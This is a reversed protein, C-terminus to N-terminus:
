GILHEQQISYQITRVNCGNYICRITVRGKHCLMSQTCATKRDKRYPLVVEFIKHRTVHSTEYKFSIVLFPYKINREPHFMNSYILLYNLLMALLVSVLVFLEITYFVRRKLSYCQKRSLWKEKKYM